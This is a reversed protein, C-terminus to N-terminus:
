EMETSINVSGNKYYVKDFMKGTRGYEAFYVVSLDNMRYEGGKYGEFTFGNVSTKITNLVDLVTVAVAGEDVDLDSYYGRYSGFEGFNKGEILVVADQPMMQLCEIFEGLTMDISWKTSLNIM